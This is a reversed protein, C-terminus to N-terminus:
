LSSMVGFILMGDDSKNTIEVVRKQGKEPMLGYKPFACMCDYSDKLQVFVTVDTIYTVTAAYKGGIKFSDYLTKRNDPMTAKVSGTAKILRYKMDRKEVTVLKINSVRVNVSEGVSYEERVDGIYNYSLENHPIKIEAGLADVVIYTRAVATIKSKVIMDDVIRPKGDRQEKVYNDIGESQLAELRSAIATHNKEDVKRVVFKVTAGYRRRIQSELKPRSEPTEYEKEDYDFLLSVPILVTFTQHGYAIEVFLQGYAESTHMGVIKGTLVRHAKASASLEIFENRKITAETEIEEDGDETIVKEAKYLKKKATKSAVTVPTNSRKIIEDFAESLAEESSLTEEEPVEEVTEEPEPAAQEKVTSEAPEAAAKKNRRKRKAKDTTEAADVKVEEMVEENNNKAM